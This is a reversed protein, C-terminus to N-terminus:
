RAVTLLLVAASESLEPEAFAEGEHVFRLAVARNPGLHPLRM